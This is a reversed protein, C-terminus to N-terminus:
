LKLTLDLDDIEAGNIAGRSSSSAEGKEDSMLKLEPLVVDVKKWVEGEENSFAVVEIEKVYEDDGDNSEGLYKLFFNEYKKMTEETEWLYVIEDEVFEDGFGFWPLSAVEGTGFGNPKAAPKALYDIIQNQEEVQSGHDNPYLVPNDEIGRFVREEMSVRREELRERRHANQHGGLANSTPFTKKCRNCMFARRRINVHNLWPDKVAGINSSGASNPTAAAM